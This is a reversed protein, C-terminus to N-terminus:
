FHLILHEETKYSQFSKTTVPKKGGLSKVLEPFGKYLITRGKKSYTYAKKKPDFKVEMHQVRNRSERVSVFMKRRDQRLLWQGKKKLLDESNRLSVKGHCYDEDFLPFDEEHCILINTINEDYGVYPSFFRRKM